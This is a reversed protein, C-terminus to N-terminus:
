GQCPSIRRRSGCHTLATFSVLVNVSQGKTFAALAKDFEETRKEYMREVAAKNAGLQLFRLGVRTM